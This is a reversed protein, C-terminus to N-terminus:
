VRASPSIMRSIRCPSECPVRTRSISSIRPDMAAGRRLAGVAGPKGARATEVRAPVLIRGSAACGAAPRQGLLAEGARATEAARPSSAAPIYRRRRLQSLDVAATAVTGVSEILHLHDVLPYLLTLFGSLDHSRMQRITSDVLRAWQARIRFNRLVFASAIWFPCLTEVASGSRVSPNYQSLFRNVM